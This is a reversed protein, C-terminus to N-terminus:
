SSSGSIVNGYGAGKLCDELEKIKTKIKQHEKLKSILGELEISTIEHHSNSDADVFWLDPSDTRIEISLPDVGMVGGLVKLRVGLDRVEHSLICSKEKAERLQDILSSVKNKFEESTM